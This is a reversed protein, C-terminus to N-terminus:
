VIASSPKRMWKSKWGQAAGFGRMGCSITATRAGSLGKSLYEGMRRAQDLVRGDLLV